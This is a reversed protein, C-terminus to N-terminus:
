KNQITIPENYDYYLSMEIGSYKEWLDCGMLGSYIHVGVGRSEFRTITGDRHIMLKPFPKVEQPKSEGITVEIM